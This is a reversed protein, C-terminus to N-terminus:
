MHPQPTSALFEEDLVTVDQFSRRDDAAEFFIEVKGELPVQRQRSPNAIDPLHGM